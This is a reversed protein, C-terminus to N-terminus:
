EKWMGEGHGGIIDIRNGRILFMQRDGKSSGKKSLIKPDTYQVM